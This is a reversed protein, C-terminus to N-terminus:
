QGSHYQAYDPEHQSVLNNFAEETSHTLRLPIVEGFITDIQSKLQESLDTPVGGSHLLPQLAVIQLNFPFLTTLKEVASATDISPQLINAIQELIKLKLRHTHAYKLFADLQLSEKIQETLATATAVPEANNWFFSETGDAFLYHIRRSIKKGNQQVTIMCQLANKDSETQPYARLRVVPNEESGISIVEVNVSVGNQNPRNIGIRLKRGEQAIVVSQRTEEMLVPYSAKIFPVKIEINGQPPADV